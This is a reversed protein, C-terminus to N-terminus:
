WVPNSPSRANAPWTPPMAPGACCANCGGRGPPEQEIEILARLERLHHANCLAHLVGKLTYYPKWHDHAVIGIIGDLLHGRQPSVRYFSLGATVAVHLWRTKGGIRFGTEDLHKVAATKVFRCLAEVFGQFRGACTASMRALTAAALRVGFLDAMLEVLQDEPIFQYHLLYVACAAIRGGYQVPATVGEPFAARTREGCQGCRCLHARHETVVLPPPEPLDFVQRASYATARDPTLASGCNPCRGPYHDIILNPEAVQRLTEGPHGKQGGPPQGSAERLSKTRLPKKLGDSSPPKGSNGSHLGLRRELEAVRAMLTTVTHRLTENESRLRAIEAAAAPSAAVERDTDSSPPSMVSIM